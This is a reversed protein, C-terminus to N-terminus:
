GPRRSGDADNPKEDGQENDDELTVWDPSRPLQLKLYVSHSLTQRYRCADEADLNRVHHDIDEDQREGDIHNLSEM